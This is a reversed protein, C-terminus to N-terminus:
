NAYEGQRRKTISIEYKRQCSLTLHPPFTESSAISFTKCIGDPVRWAFSMLLEIQHRHITLTYQAM